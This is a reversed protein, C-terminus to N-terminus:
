AARRYRHHLGGVIPISHVKGREPLEVERPIPSNHDLSLHARANHYYDFYDTLIRRIDLESQPLVTSYSPFCGVLAVSDLVLLATLCVRVCTRLMM